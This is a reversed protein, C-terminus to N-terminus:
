ETTIQEVKQFEWGRHCHFGRGKRVKSIATSTILRGRILLGIPKTSHQDVSVADDSPNRIPIHPWGVLGDPVRHNLFRDVISSRTVDVILLAGQLKL